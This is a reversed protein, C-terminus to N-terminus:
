YYYYDDDDDDHHLCAERGGGRAREALRLAQLDDANPCACFRGKASTVKADTVKPAKCPAM